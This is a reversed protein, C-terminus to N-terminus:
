SAPRIEVLAPLLTPVTSDDSGSIPVLFFPGNERLCNGGGSDWSDPDNLGVLATSSPVWAIPSSVSDDILVAQLADAAAVYRQGTCTGNSSSYYVTSREVEFIDGENEYPVLVGTDDFHVLIQGGCSRGRGAPSRGSGCARRTSTSAGVLGEVVVVPPARRVWRVPRVRPAQLARPGPLVLRAAGGLRVPPVPRVQPVPPASLDPNARPAKVV